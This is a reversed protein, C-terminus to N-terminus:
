DGDRVWASDASTLAGRVLRVDTGRELMGHALALRVGAAVPDDDASRVEVAASAARPPVAAVRILRISDPWLGRLPLTAADFEEEAFSSVIAVEVREHQRYLADARRLLLVLAGSLSGKAEPRAEGISSLEGRSRVTALSDFVIVEAADAGSAFALASDRAAGPDAVARSRDLAVIRAVGARRPTLVPRALAAGILALVALRLLLLPLDSPRAARASRRSSRDPVFRATPLMLDDPRRWAIFHLAIAALAAVLTAVLFGPALFTM